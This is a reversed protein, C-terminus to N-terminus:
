YNIGAKEQHGAPCTSGRTKDGTFNSGSVAVFFNNGRLCATPNSAKTREMLVEKQKHRFKERRTLFIKIAFNNEKSLHSGAQAL